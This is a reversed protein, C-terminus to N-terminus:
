VAAINLPSYIHARSFEDNPAVPVMVNLEQSVPAAVESKVRLEIEDFDAIDDIDHEVADIDGAVDGFVANKPHEVPHEYGDGLKELAAGGFGDDFKVALGPLHNQLGLAALKQHGEVTDAAM